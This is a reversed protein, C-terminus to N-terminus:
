SGAPAPGSDVAAALTGRYRVILGTFPHSVEVDFRFKGDEVSESAISRPGLWLPLPIGFLSWRRVVYRLCGNQVVLAMDVAVPGFRERVLWKARGRGAHQVSSFRRSGCSRVWREGDGDISLRVTISQENGRKPFGISEAVLWALPNCGRDVTCHGVFTSASTVSHLQRIAPALSEWSEGLIQHYLPAKPAPTPQRIGTYISRRLFLAEYDALEVDSVAARAGPPPPNGTLANRIVAEQKKCAPKRETNACYRM